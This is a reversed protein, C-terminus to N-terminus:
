RYTWMRPAYSRIRVPAPASKIAAAHPRMARKIDKKLQTYGGLLMQAMSQYGQALNIQLSIGNDSYSFQEGNQLIGEAILSYIIGGSIVCATWADPYDNLDFITLAPEANIDAIGQQLYGLLMYDSWREGRHSEVLTNLSRMVDEPLDKLMIRLRNVLMRERDTLPQEYYDNVSDLITPM